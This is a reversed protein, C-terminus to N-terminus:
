GEDQPDKSSPRMSENSKAKRQIGAEHLKSDYFKILHM